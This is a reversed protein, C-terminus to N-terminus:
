RIIASTIQCNKKLIKHPKLRTFNKSFICIAPAIINPSQQVPSDVTLMQTQTLPICYHGNSTHQLHIERGYMSITDNVFDLKSNAAKLSPKSLLLPIECDVVDSLIHGKIGGISVPINVQKLSPYTIGDGFKFTKDSSKSDTIPADSTDQYCEFWNKGRVTATCGTDVLTCPLCESVVQELYCQSVGETLLEVHIDESNVDTFLQVHVDEGKESRWSLEPCKNAWHYISKCINCTSPNGESDLPNKFSVM